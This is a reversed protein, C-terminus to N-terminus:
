MLAMLFLKSFGCVTAGVVVVVVVTLGTSCDFSTSRDVNLRLSSTIESLSDINENMTKAKTITATRRRETKM